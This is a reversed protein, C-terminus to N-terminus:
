GDARSDAGVYRREGTRPNFLVEMARGSGPDIFHEDTKVWEDAADRTSPRYRWREFLVALVVVAGIVGIPTAGLHGALRAGLGVVFMVLGVVLLLTRLM